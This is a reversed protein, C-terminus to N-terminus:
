RTLQTIERKTVPHLENFENKRYLNKLQSITSIQTRNNLVRDIELATDRTLGLNILNIVSEDCSGVEIFAHLKTTSLDLKKTTIIDTLLSHYCRLASLMRFRVDNNLIKIVDRVIKNVNSAGRNKADYSVQETIITKLSDGQVWKKTLICAHNVTVNENLKLIGTDILTSCIRTLKEYLLPSKPHPLVWDKLNNQQSIFTYLKNQQIFGVTPSSELTFSDVKLEEYATKISAKLKVVDYGALTLESANITSSLNDAAFEKLLKNAITYYTTQNSQDHNLSGQLANLVTPLDENLVKFYTSIKDVTETNDEFDYEHLWDDPEILFINGSFHELMRGARGIINAIKVKELKASNDGIPTHAFPNKLFLNKAPLNIGEALTSTCVVYQVAREKVLREVTTRIVSPLPGYHFAVGKRLCPALSYDQHIFREIYDAAEDLSDNNINEPILNAIKAATLECHNTQNQYVINSEGDGLRYVIDALNRGTFNKNITVLEPKSVRSLEIFRDRLKVDIIIKAVPSHKTTKKKFNVGEFVSDYANQYGESPMSIIIQPNSDELMKQLTLHLLVGRSQDSINHAEDVFLYDFSLDGGQLVEFLREQTMVFITKNKFTGDKPITCIEIENEANKEKAIQYINGAVESILARTPVVVVGFGDFNILEHVIYNLIIHTKGASTPASTIVDDDSSLDQWLVRQYDTLPHNIAEVTHIDRRFEKEIENFVSVRFPINEFKDKLLQINPFDGVRYFVEEAIAVIEPYEEGAVFLLMSLLIAGENKFENEGTLYYYQCTTALKKIEKRNIEYKEGTMKNIYAKFLAGCSSLYKENKIIKTSLEKYIGSV